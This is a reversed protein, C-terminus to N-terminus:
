VKLICIFYKKRKKRINRKLIVVVFLELVCMESETHEPIFCTFSVVPSQQGDHDDSHLTDALISFKMM